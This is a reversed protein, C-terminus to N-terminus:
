PLVAMAVLFYILISLLDQIVTALPGSGFAPDIGLTDFLWPLLMASVTAISCAAFLSLGVCLALDADRWRWWVLPSSVAALALGIAVGTLLERVVMRQIPVGVSLGRVVVTETQTGVADALYVIGPIFFALVMKLELTDYNIRTYREELVMETSHPYGFHDVWTRDDYGTSTVVLTNGEWRGVAYGWWRPIDVEIPQPLTRGDMWITRLGYGWQFHQLIRDPLGILIGITSTTGIDFGIVCTM